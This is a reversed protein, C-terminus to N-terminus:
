VEVCGSGDGQLSRLLIVLFNEWSLEPQLSSRPHEYLFFTVKLSM